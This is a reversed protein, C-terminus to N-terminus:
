GSAEVDRTKRLRLSIGEFVLMVVVPPVIFHWIWVNAAPAGFALKLLYNHLYFMATMAVLSSLLDRSLQGAGANSGSRRIRVSDAINILTVAALVLIIIPDIINWIAQGASANLAFFYYNFCAIAGVIPAIGALISRLSNM